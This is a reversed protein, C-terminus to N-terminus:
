HKLVADIIEQVLEQAVQDLQAQESTSAPSSSRWTDKGIYVIRHFTFSTKPASIPSRSHTPSSPFLVLVTIEGM